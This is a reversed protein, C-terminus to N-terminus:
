FFLFGSVGSFHVDRERLSFIGKCQGFMELPHIIKKAPVFFKFLEGRWRNSTYERDDIIEAFGDFFCFALFGLFICM